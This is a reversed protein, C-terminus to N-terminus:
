MSESLIEEVIDSLFGYEAGLPYIEKELYEEMEDPDVENSQNLKDALKNYHKAAEKDYIEYGFGNLAGYEWYSAPVKDRDQLIFRFFADAIKDALNEDLIDDATVWKKNALIDSDVDGCFELPSFWKYSGFVLVTSNKDSLFYTYPTERDTDSLIVNPSNLQSKNKVFDKVFMVKGIQTHCNGTYEDIESHFLNINYEKDKYRCAIWMYMRRDNCENEIGQGGRVKIELSELEPRGEKRKTLASIMIRRADSLLEVQMETIKSLTMNKRM